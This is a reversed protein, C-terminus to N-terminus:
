GKTSRPDAGYTRKDQITGDKRKITLESLEGSNTLCFRCFRAAMAVAGRKLRSRGQWVRGRYIAWGDPATLWRVEWRIRAM